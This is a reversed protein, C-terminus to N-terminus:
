LEVLLHSLCAHIIDSGIRTLVRSILPSRVVAPIQVQCVHRVHGCNFWTVRQAAAPIKDGNSVCKLLMSNM